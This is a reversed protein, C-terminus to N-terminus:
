GWASFTLKGTDSLIEWAGGANGNVGIAAMLAGTTGPTFTLWPNTDADPDGSALVGDNEFWAKGTDMNLFLGYEKNLAPNGATPNAANAQTFDVGNFSGDPQVGASSGASGLYNASSFGANCFGWQNLAAGAASTCKFRIYHKGSAKATTVRIAKWSTASTKEATKDGNTLTWGRDTADQTNWTAPTVPVVLSPRRLLAQRLLHPAPM